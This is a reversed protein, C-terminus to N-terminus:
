LSRSFAKYVRGRPGIELVTVRRDTDNRHFLLRWDDAFRCTFVSTLDAHKFHKISTGNPYPAMLLVQRAEEVLVKLPPDLHRYQRAAHADFVVEFQATKPTQVL